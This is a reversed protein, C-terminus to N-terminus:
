TVPDTVGVGVFRSTIVRTVGIAAALGIVIGLVSLRIGRGVV